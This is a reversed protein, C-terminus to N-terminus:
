LGGERLIREREKKYEDETIAKADYLTRLKKLRSAVDEVAPPPAVPAPTVPAPPPPPSPPTLAQVDVARETLGFATERERRCSPSPGYFAGIQLSALGFVNNGGSNSSAFDATAEGMAFFGFSCFPQVVLEVYPGLTPDVGGTKVGDVNFQQLGIGVGLGLSVINFPFRPGLRLMGRVADTSPSSPLAYNSGFSSRTLSGAAYAFSLDAQFWRRVLGVDVSVGALSGASGSYADPALSYKGIMAPLWFAAGARFLGPTGQPGKLLVNKDLPLV